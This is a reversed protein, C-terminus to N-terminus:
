IRPTAPMCIWSGCTVSPPGTRHLALACVAHGLDPRRSHAVAHVARRPIWDQRRNGPAARFGRGAGRGRHHNAPREVDGPRLSLWRRGASRSFLGPIGPWVWPSRRNGIDRAPCRADPHQWFGGGCTEIANELIDYLASTLDRASLLRSSLAHLRSIAALELALRGESERLADEVKKREYIDIGTPHLYRVAGSEDRIPHMAYEAIRASGDALWYPLVDRYVAGSRAQEISARIRGQVEDSGRWWPTQWFPLNVVQDRSYGCWDAALDNVERLNGELDVIGAFIGAQNFVAEFKATAALTQEILSREREEALKRETVDRTFCRRTCLAM